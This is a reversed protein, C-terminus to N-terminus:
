LGERGLTVTIEIQNLGEGHSGTSHVSDPFFGDHKWFNISQRDEQGLHFPNIRKLM